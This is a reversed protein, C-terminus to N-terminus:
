LTADRESPASKHGTHWGGCIGCRYVTVQGQGAAIFGSPKRLTGMAHRADKRSPYPIKTCRQKVEVSDDTNLFAHAMLCYNEESRLVAADSDFRM